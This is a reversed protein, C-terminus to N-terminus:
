AAVVPRHRRPHTGHVHRRQARSSGTGNDSGPDPTLAALRATSAQMQAMAFLVFVTQGPLHFIPSGFSNVVAVAIMAIWARDLPVHGPSWFEPTGAPCAWWLRWADRGLWLVWALGLGLGILGLEFWLQYAENHAQLTAFVVPKNAAVSLKVNYNDAWIRWSGLGQGILPYRKVEPWIAQWVQWRGSLRWEHVTMVWGVSAVCVGVLVARWRRSLSPWAMLIAGVSASIIPGGSWSTIILAYLAAAPLLGVLSWVLPLGLAMLSGFYNTHTLFGMPKGFYAPEVFTMYPYPGAMVTVDRVIWWLGVGVAGAWLGALHFRSPPWGSRVVSVVMLIVLGAWIFPAWVGLLAMRWLPSLLPTINVLGLIAEYAIGAFMAWAVWRVERPDLTRAAMSLMGAMGLLLLLQLARLPFAMMGARILAWAILAALPWAVRHLGPVTPLALKACLCVAGGLLLWMIPVAREVMPWNHVPFPVVVLVGLAMWVGLAVHRETLSLVWRPALTWAERM